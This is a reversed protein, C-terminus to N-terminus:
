TEIWAELDKTYSKVNLENSYKIEECSTEFNRLYKDQLDLTFEAFSDDVQNVNFQKKM